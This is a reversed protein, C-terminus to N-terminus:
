KIKDKCYQLEKELVNIEIKLESIYVAKDIRRQNAGANYIIQQTNYKQQQVFVSGANTSIVLSVVFTILMKNNWLTSKQDITKEDVM